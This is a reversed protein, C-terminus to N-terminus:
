GEVDNICKKKFRCNRCYVSEESYLGGFDNCNIYGQITNWNRKRWKELYDETLTLRYKDELPNKLSYSEKLRQVHYLQQSTRNSYRKQMGKGYITNLAKFPELKKDWYCSFAYVSYEWVFRSNNEPIMKQFRSLIKLNREGSEFRYSPNNTKKGYLYNYIRIIKYIPTKM